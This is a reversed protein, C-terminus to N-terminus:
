ACTWAWLKFRGSADFDLGSVRTKGSNVYPNYVLGLQGVGGYNM